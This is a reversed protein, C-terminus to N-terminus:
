CRLEMSTPSFDRQGPLALIGPIRDYKPAVTANENGDFVSHVALQWIGNARRTIVADEHISFMKIVSSISICRNTLYFCATKVDRPTNPVCYEKEEQVLSKVLKIDRVANTFQNYRKFSLTGNRRM